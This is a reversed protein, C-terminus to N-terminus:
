FRSMESEVQSEKAYHNKNKGFKFTFNLKVLRTEGYGYSVSEFGDFRNVSDWNNTWFVDSLSLKVSARDQLFTKQFGINVLGNNGMVETSGGLRKSSYIGLVESRIGWVLPFSAQLSVGYAWRKRHYFRTEDFAM